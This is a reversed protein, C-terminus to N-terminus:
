GEVHVYNAELGTFAVHPRKGQWIVTRDDAADLLARDSANDTVVRIAPRQEYAKLLEGLAVHKAGTLDHAIRGTCTENDFALTSAVYEVGLSQAIAEIVPEISNSMLVVREGREKHAKLLAQSHFIWDHDLLEAQYRRAGERLNDRTQGALTAVLAARILDARVIKGVIHAGYRGPSLRHTLAKCILASRRDGNIQHYFILFGITTNANFLTGCVDFICM